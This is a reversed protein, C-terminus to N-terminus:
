NTLKGVVHLVIKGSAITTSVPRVLYYSPPKENTTSSIAWLLAGHSDSEYSAVLKAHYIEFPFASPELVGTRYMGGFKVSNEIDTFYIGGLPMNCEANAVEYMGWLEVDDNAWKTYTWIDSTGQEVISSSSADKLDEIDEVAKDYKAKLEDTFENTVTPIDDKKVYDDEITKIRESLETDDYVTDTFVANEPVDSKVTHGDLNTELVGIRNSLETDDYVTDTFVANEPVDSKVTHGDLNTELVDIRNSLETDDYVTDTFVANEPVDSKVTHGDLNTELVSVRNSLGADDYSGPLDDKKVYGTLDVSTDGILVIENGIKQYEQYIDPGVVNEVKLMYIVNEDAANATPISTVIERTLHSAGAIQEAVYNELQSLKNKEETTFSEQSLGMGDEKDVKDEMSYEIKTVREPLDAVDKVDDSRAAPSSLNGTITATHNKIMVIVRENPKTDAASLVPTLLKSGDLRVYIVGDSQVTTGYVTTEKKRGEDDNTIKAFQSILETSLDM